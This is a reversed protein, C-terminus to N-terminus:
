YNTGPIIGIVQDLFLTLEDSNIESGTTTIIKVKELHIVCEKDKYSDESHSDIFQELTSIALDRYKLKEGAEKAKTMENVFVEESEISFRKVTAKQGQIMGFSTIYTIAVDDRDDAQMSRYLALVLGKKYSKDESM